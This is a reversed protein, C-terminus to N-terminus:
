GAFCVTYSIITFTWKRVMLRYTCIDMKSCYKMLVNNKVVLPEQNSAASALKPNNLYFVVANSPCRVATGPLSSFLTWDALLLLCFPCAALFVILAVGQIRVGRWQIILSPPAAVTGTSIDRRWIGNPLMQNIPGLLGCGHGEWWVLSLSTKQLNSPLYWGVVLVWVSTSTVFIPFPTWISPLTKWHWMNWLGGSIGSSYYICFLLSLSNLM